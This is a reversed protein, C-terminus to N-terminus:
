YVGLSKATLKADKMNEFINDDTKTTSLYNGGFPLDEVHARTKPPLGSSKLWAHRRITIASVVRKAASDLSDFAIRLSQKSM